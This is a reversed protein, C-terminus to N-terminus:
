RYLSVRRSSKVYARRAWEYEVPLAGETELEDIEESTPQQREATHHGKADVHPLRYFTRRRRGSREGWVEVLGLDILERLARSRSFRTVPCVAELMQLSPFSRRQKLNYFTGLALYLAWANRRMKLCFEEVFSRTIMAFRSHWNEDVKFSAKRM